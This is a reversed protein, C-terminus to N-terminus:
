TPKCLSESQLEEMDLQLRAVTDILVAGPSWVPDSVVNGAPLRTLNPEFHKEEPSLQEDPSPRDLVKGFRLQTPTKMGARQRRHTLGPYAPIAAGQRRRGTGSGAM